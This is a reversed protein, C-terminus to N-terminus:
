LSLSSSRSLILYIGYLFVQFADAHGLFYRLLECDVTFAPTSTHGVTDVRSSSLGLTLLTLYIFRPNTYRM